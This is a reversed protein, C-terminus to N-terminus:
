IVQGPEGSSQEFTTRLIEHRQVVVALSRELASVDLQGSLRFALPVNYTASGPEWQDLFWLREQAFSLACTDSNRKQPLIQQKANGVQRQQLQQDLMKEQ